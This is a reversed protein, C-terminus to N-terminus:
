VRRMKSKMVYLMNIIWIQKFRILILFIKYKTPVFKLKMKTIIKVFIDDNIYKNIINKKESKSITEQQIRVIFSIFLELFNCGLKSATYDTMLGRETLNEWAMKNVKIVDSFYSRNFSRTMSTNDIRYNYLPIPIYLASTCNKLIEMMQAKDEGHAVVPVNWQSPLISKLIVKTCMSNIEDTCLLKDWLELLNRGRYFTPKEITIQRSNKQQSSSDWLYYSFILMDPSYEEIYSDITTLTYPEWTDDSDCCIIYKGMAKEYLFFRTRMLGENNKNFYKIKPNKKCMYDCVKATNDTSGDNAIIIEFDSINQKLISEITDMLYEEANYAPILISYKPM